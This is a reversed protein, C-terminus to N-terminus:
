CNYRRICLGIMGRLIRKANILSLRTDSLKTKGSGDDFMIVPITKEKGYLAYLVGARHDGDYIQCKQNVIIYQNNYPYGNEKISYEIRELRDFNSENAYNLQSYEALAAKRGMLAKAIRGDEVKALLQINRKGLLNCQKTTRLQKIAIDVIRASEISGADLWDGWLFATPDIATFDIVSASLLEKVYDTLIRCLEIFDSISLRFSFGDYLIYIVNDSLHQIELSAENIISKVLVDDVVDRNIDKKDLEKAAFRLAATFRIFDNDPMSICTDSINLCTNHGIDNSAVKVKKLDIIKNNM